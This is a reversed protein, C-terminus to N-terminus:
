LPACFCTFQKSRPKLHKQSIVLFLNNSTSQRTSHYHISITPIFYDDFPKFATAQSLFVHM